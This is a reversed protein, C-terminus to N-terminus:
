SRYGSRCPAELGKFAYISSYQLEGRKPQTGDARSLVQRLWSDSTTAAVSESGLLNLVVIERLDYSDERLAQRKASCHLNTM